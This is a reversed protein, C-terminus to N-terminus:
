ANWGSWRLRGKWSFSARMVGAVQKDDVFKQMAPTIRALKESSLGVKEPSATPLEDAFASPIFLFSLVLVSVHLGRSLKMKNHGRIVSKRM